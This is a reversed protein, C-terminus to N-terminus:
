LFSCSAQEWDITAFPIYSNEESVNKTVSCVEVGDILVSITVGHDLSFISEPYDHVYVTYIAQPPPLDIEIQEPGTGSDDHLILTPNDQENGIIGWDLGHNCNQYNCDSSTNLLTPDDVGNLLHLDMDDGAFLWELSISLRPLDYQPENTPEQAPEADPEQTPETEPEQTPQAEPESTPDQTPETDPEQTPQPQPDSSPVLSSEPEQVPETTKETDFCGIICFFLLM